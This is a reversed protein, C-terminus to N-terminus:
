KKEIAILIPPENNQNIFEYKLVNFEKQNLNETLKFVEDKESQGGPHGYYIVLILIGHKKLLKLGKNISIITSEPHTILSKDGGPLYGLNYIIAAINNHKIYKDFNSHSDKIIDVNDISNEKLLKKTNNIALDQIDFSFVKGKQGVIEALFKTDHGNGMTADIVYDGTQTTQKLIDHSFNLASKILM